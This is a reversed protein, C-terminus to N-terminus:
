KLLTELTEYSKVELPHVMEVSLGLGIAKLMTERAEKSKGASHQIQAFHFLRYPTEAEKLATRIDKEAEVLKGQLRLVAARSDLAECGENPPDQKALETLLSDFHQLAETEKGTLGLLFALNNKAILNFKKSNLVSRYLVEAEAFNSQREKLLALQLNWQHGDDPSKAAKKRADEVWGEVQAFQKPSAKNACVASVATSIGLVPADKLLRGCIELAEDLRGLGSLLEAHAALNIKDGSKDAFARLADVNESSMGRALSPHRRVLGALRATGEAVKANEKSSKVSEQLARFWVEADNRENHIMLKNVFDALRVQDKVHDPHASLYNTMLVRAQRWDQEADYLTALVLTIDSSMQKGQYLAEIEKIAEKRRTDDGGLLLARILRDEKSAPNVALNQEVFSMAQKEKDNEDAPKKDDKSHKKDIQAMLARALNRRAWMQQEQSANLNTQLLRRLPSEAKDPKASSLYFSAVSQLLFKQQDPDNPAAALAEQYAKEAEENKGILQYCQALSFPAKGAPLKAKMEEIVELAKKKEPDASRSRLQVMLMWPRPDDDALNIASRLAKEAETPHDLAALMQGRWLLDKFNKSDGTVAMQTLDYARGLDQTFLSIEAARMQLEHTGALDVEHLKRLVTQAEVLRNKDKLHSALAMLLHTQRNGLKEAEFMHKIALDVDGEFEAATALSIPIRSWNPRKVAAANLHRRAAALKPQAEPPLKKQAKVLRGCEHILREAEAFQGVPGSPGEIKKIGALTDTMGKENESRVFFDFASLQVGLQNPQLVVIQRWLKEAEARNGTREYADALYRLVVAKDPNQVADLSEGISQLYPIADEKKSPVYRLKAIRWEPREPYKASAESLIALAKATGDADGKRGAVASAAIWPEISKPAEVKAMEIYKSADAFRQNAEQLKAKAEKGKGKDKDEDRSAQLSKAQLELGTAEAMAVEAQLLAVEAHLPSVESEKKPNAKVIDDLSKSIAKWNAQERPLQLNKRILFRAHLLSGGKIARSEVIADELRGHAALTTALGYRATDNKPDLNLARQYVILQQDMQGIQEFCTALLLDARVALDRKMMALLPRASELLSIAESWNKNQVAVRARLFDVYYTQMGNQKLLEIADEAKKPKNDDILLSALKWLHDNREFKGRAKKQAIDYLDIAVDRRNAAVELEALQPLVRPDNRDADGARKLYQRAKEFYGVKKDKDETLSAQLREQHASALLVGLDKPALKRAIELDADADALNKTQNQQGEPTRDQSDVSQRFVARIVFAQADKENAQVLDNMVKAAEKPKKLSQHLLNALYVYTPLKKPAGDIAKRYYDEAEKWRAQQVSEGGVVKKAKIHGLLVYVEPNIVDANTLPTLLKLAEDEDGTIAYIKAARLPIEPNSRDLHLIRKYVSLVHPKPTEPLKDDLLIAYRTLAEVDDEKVLLYLRLFRQARDYQPPDSEEARKALELFRGHLERRQMRHLMFWGSGLLTFAVVMLLVAKWRFKGQLM